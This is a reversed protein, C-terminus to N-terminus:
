RLLRLGSREKTSKQGDTQLLHLVEHHVLLLPLELNRWVLFSDCRGFHVRIRHGTINTENEDLSLLWRVSKGVLHRRLQPKKM